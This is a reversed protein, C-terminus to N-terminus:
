PGAVLGAFSAECDGACQVVLSYGPKLVAFPAGNNSAGAASFLQIFPLSLGTGLPTVNESYILGPPQAGDCVAPFTPGVLTGAAPVQTTFYYATDAIGSIVVITYVFLWRSQDNNVLTIQGDKGAVDAVQGSGAFQNQYFWDLTPLVRTGKPKSFSAPM